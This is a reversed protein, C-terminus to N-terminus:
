GAPHLKGDRLVFQDGRWAVTHGTYSAIWVFVAIIDRLPILWFDRVLSRDQLVGAGVEFAVALRFLLAGLLLLWSWLADHAAAVALLAWPVAFTLLLGAYGGRRSHRTSRAWRLQHQLFESFSYEPLHTDVVVDSLAVSRGSAAVRRGLEYDDALYDVLSEFGGIAPLAERSLAMTSGLAFRVSGELQRAALVGAHFDTSIGVAELRSGLTASAHGRYMCTVLGTKPSVLPAMIRRLYDAPVRIDSDNIVLYPHRAQELMQILNSVKLNTGLVQPCVVLKIARGPFERMLRHVLPVADDGPDSVGFIIEYEPYDQLCHSRFSQYIDPDTGRLPKLISVPPTFAGSVKQAAWYRRFRRAGWLCLVYYGVGCSTCVVALFQLWERFLHFM